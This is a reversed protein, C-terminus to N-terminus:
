RKEPKLPVEEDMRAAWHGIEDSDSSGRYAQSVLIAAIAWTCGAGQERVKELAWYSIDSAQDQAHVLHVRRWAYWVMRELRDTSQNDEQRCLPLMKVVHEKVTDGVTRVGLEKPAEGVPLPPAPPAPKGSRMGVGYWVLGVLALGCFVILGHFATFGSRPKAVPQRPAREVRHPDPKPPSSPRSFPTATPSPSAATPPTTAIPNRVGCHPCTVAEASVDKGCERCKALAM